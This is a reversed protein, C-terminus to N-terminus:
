SNFYKIRLFTVQSLFARRWDVDHSGVLAIKKNQFFTTFSAGANLGRKAVLKDTSVGFMPGTNVFRANLVSNGSKLYQLYLAHGEFEFFGNEQEHSVSGGIALQWSDNRSKMVSLNADGGGVEQYPNNVVHAYELSVMPTFVLQKKSISYGLRVKSGWQRGYYNSTAIRNLAPIVRNGKFHNRAVFGAADVFLSQHDYAAYVTAQGSDVSVTSGTFDKRRMFSDSYNLVAGVRWHTYLQKDAVVGVGVTTAHYGSMLNYTKKRINRHLFVPGVYSENEAPDGAVYGTDGLRNNALRMTLLRNEMHLLPLQAASSTVELLGRNAGEQALTLLFNEVGEVTESQELTSFVGPLATREGTKNLDDLTGALGVLEPVSNVEKVERTSLLVSLKNGNLEPVANLLVSSITCPLEGKVELHDAELLEYRSSAKYGEQENAAILHLSANSLIADGTVILKGSSGDPWVQVKLTSGPDQQIDGHIISGTKQAAYLTGQNVINGTLERGLVLESKPFISLLKHVRTQDALKLQAPAQIRIENAVTTPLQSSTNVDIQGTGSISQLVSGGQFILNGQDLHVANIVGGLQLAISSESLATVTGVSGTVSGSVSFVAKDVLVDGGNLLVNSTNPLTWDSEIQLTSNNELIFNECNVFADPSQVTVSVSPNLVVSGIQSLQGNFNQDREFVVISTNQNSSLATVRSVSGGDLALVSSDKINISGQLQTGVGIRLTGGNIHTEGSFISNGSLALLGAGEKQLTGDGGIGGQLTISRNEAADLTLITGSMGYLDFGQTQGNASGKGAILRSGRFLIDQTTSRITIRGFTENSGRVFLAGGFANGGQGRNTTSPSGGSGGGFGGHAAESLDLSGGGGGGFGGVGGQQNGSVESGGAGGGGGFDGGTGGVNSNPLAKQGGIGGGGGSTGNNSAKKNASWAAVLGGGGGQLGGVAVGFPSEDPLSGDGGSSAAELLGTKGDNGKQRNNPAHGGNAGFGGGGGAIM